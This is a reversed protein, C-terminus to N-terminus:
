VAICKFGHWKLAKVKSSSVNPILSWWAKPVSVQYGCVNATRYTTLGLTCGETVSRQNIAADCVM